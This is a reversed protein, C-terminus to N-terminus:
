VECRNLMVQTTLMRPLVAPAQPPMRLDRRLHIWAIAGEMQQKAERSFNRTLIPHSVNGCSTESRVIMMVSEAGGTRSLSVEKWLPLALSESSTRGRLKSSSGLAEGAVEVGIKKAIGGAPGVRSNPIIPSAGLSSASCTTLSSRGLLSLSSVPLLRPLRRFPSAAAASPLVEAEPQVGPLLLLLLLLLLLGLSRSPPRMMLTALFPLLVLLLV